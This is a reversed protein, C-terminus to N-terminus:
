PPPPPRRGTALSLRLLCGYRHVAYLRENHQSRMLSVIGQTGETSHFPIGAPKSIFLVSKTELLVPVGGVLHLHAM